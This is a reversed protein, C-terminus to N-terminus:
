QQFAESTDGSTRPSCTLVTAPAARGGRGGMVDGHVRSWSKGACVVAVDEAHNCNHRGWFRHPCEELSREKGSCAVDDLWIRGTGPGFRRRSKAPPSLSPGCGLQRCVVRDAAEGWGDDCVTGWQSKHLVQLRGACRGDGGVLRLEFPDAPVPPLLPPPSCPVSLPGARSESGM